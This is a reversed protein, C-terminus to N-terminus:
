FAALPKWGRAVAFRCRAVWDAAVGDDTASGAAARLRNRAREAEDCRNREARAVVLTRLNERSLEADGLGLADAREMFEAAKDSAARVQRALLYLLLADNPRKALADLMRFTQTTGGEGDILYPKLLAGLSPDALARLRVVTARHTEREAPISAARRYLDHAATSDGRRWLEDGVRLRSSAELAPDLRPHSWLTAAIGEIRAADTEKMRIAVDLKGNVLDPDDPQFACVKDFLALAESWRRDSALANATDVLASVERACRRKFISSEAFRRAATSRGDDDVHVTDLMRDFDHILTSSSAGLSALDGTRYLTQMESAGVRTSLYRIFAGSYSYARRPAEDMFGWSSLLRELNPAVHLDRMARARQALTLAGDDVDYAVAFGEVLAASPLLGGPTLWAGTAFEATMAHVLEHRLPVHPYGGPHIHIEHRYPKAFSTWEAGVLRRKEVASPYMWVHILNRPTIGFARELQAVDFTADRVLAEVQRDSWARPYHIVLGDIRIEGNIAKALSRDTTRWGLDSGWGVSAVILAATLAICWAAHVRRSARDGRTMAGAAAVAAAGWLVTGLRFSVLAPTIPITEDYMPGPFYGAFHDFAFCVPGWYATAASTVISALEVVVVTAIAFPLRRVRPRVLGGLTAGLWATPAPLLLMWVAGAAPECLPRRVGNLLILFTPVVLAGVAFLGAQAAAQAPRQRHPEAAGDIRVAAFGVCPAVIANVLTLAAALEFGLHDALPLCACVVAVAADIALLSRGERTRWLARIVM